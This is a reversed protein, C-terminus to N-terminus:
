RTAGCRVAINNVTPTARGQPLLIAGGEVRSAYNGLFPSISEGVVFQEEPTTIIPNTAAVYQNKKEFLNQVKENIEIKNSFFVLM